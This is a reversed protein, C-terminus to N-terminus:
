EALYSGTVVFQGQPATGINSIRGCDVNDVTEKNLYLTFSNVQSGTSYNVPVFGCSQYPAPLDLIFTTRQYFAQGLTLKFMFTVMKGFQTYVGIADGTLASHVYTKTFPNTGGITISTPTIYAVEGVVPTGGVLRKISLVEPTLLTEYNAGSNTLFLRGFRKDTGALDHVYQLKVVTDSMNDEIQLGKPYMYLHGENVTSSRNYAGLHLVGVDCTQGSVEQSSLTSAKLEGLIYSDKNTLITGDYYIRTARYDDRLGAVFGRSSLTNKYYLNNIYGNMNIYNTNAVASDINLIGDKITIKGDNAVSFYGNIDTYGNLNIKSASIDITTATQNIMSVITNGNYDVQSVKTSIEKESKKIQSSFIGNEEEQTITTDQRKVGGTSEIECGSANCYISFIRTKYTSIGIQLGAYLVADGSPTLLDFLYARCPYPVGVNVIETRINDVVTQVASATPNNFLLPNFNIKYVGHTSTATSEIDGNITGCVVKDIEEVEDDIEFTRYDNNTYTILDQASPTPFQGVALKGTASQVYIYGACVEAIAKLLKQGNSILPREPISYSSNISPNVSSCGFYTCLASFLSSVTIPYTQADLFDNIDVDFQRTIDFATVRTKGDKRTNSDVYFDGVKVWSDTSYRKVKYVLHTGEDLTNNNLDCTFSIRKNQIGGIRIDYATNVVSEYDVGGYLITDDISQAVTSGNMVEILNQM